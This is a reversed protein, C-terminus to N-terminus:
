RELYGCYPHSSSWKFLTELTQRGNLRIRFPVSKELQETGRVALTILTSDDLAFLAAHSYQILVRLQDLILDPQLELTSALIQSIQLLTSQEQVRVMMRQKLMYESQIRKSVDRLIALACDRNQHKFAVARWEVNILLADLRVHQAVSEFLGGQQIIPINNIFFSLSKPRLFRELPLDFFDKLPYGHMVAAASNAFLVKKMELDIIIVGDSATELIERYPLEIDM